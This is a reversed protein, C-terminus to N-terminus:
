KRKLPGWAQSPKPLPVVTGFSPFEDTSNTDPVKDWPADKVFFGKSEKPAGNVDPRSPTEHLEKLYEQDIIDQLYEEEFAMLYERCDLCNEEAGTITIVDPEDSDPRPFKIDVKYEDMLRRVNRGKTGIIRPHVRPDIKVNISSMDELEHVIELIAKKALNANNEYGTITIVNQVENREPFQINVDHDSRIKSIVAGKRGIIKPHYQSDVEVELKYSRLLRDQKESELATCREELAQKAGQVNNPPGTVKIINSKEEPPPVTISVEHDEMMKRVDKGKQGIIFRHFEFPVEVELTIPVLALLAKKAEECNEPKGTILIVDTKNTGSELSSEVNPIVDGNPIATSADDEPPTITVREGNVPRDPFKIGVDFQRTIEQVKQGRAGMVTRHYKQAIVCEVVVQADLNKILNELEEKAQEVAEKKGIVSILEPDSDHENPFIVRAGTKERVKKIKSGGTGILFKHYAPKARITATYSSLQKESTLERLQKCANEADEPPGRIVVKDCASGEPPFRIHVGSCDDLIARILRGKAGIISNHFKSPIEVTIEKINALDKQIAEIKKKALEVNAKKGTIIIMDSNMNEHPLEIRTDTEDRIKKITAGGKGIINKHFEKFIQVQAQYNNTVLEQQYQSLHQYAKDVDNKPGRLTVVDSKKGADPFSIQVQNFKDRIERIKEGRAGIITKHFRQEIIIDRSKENEMRQAMELLEQKARQVGNPDGEIRIINSNDSDSPIQIAVGTENKIRSINAGNKGIIHKHFRQDIEIEAFAMRKRLDEICESLKQVCEEVEDPPGEINIKDQGETFEIHVKPTNQTIKKINSGQKGIIFRHLWAPAKVEEVIVSNAKSYVMTLAPGLKDEEGRLTITGSPSELSPVEVSVGTAELIEQINARKQGIVYKHQCKRVEVSVPQCKKKKEELTKLIFTKAKMVGEKEGSVVIEDKMVSPPPVNIRVNTSEMLSKINNNHPGCIFPHYIKPVPIREFALKAQEDSTCQIEHRAKEVGEKTGVIRIIDTNDARPIIIKTATNLELEQLKKGNKGLIFRHHEKPIKITYSAQTQLESVVERRAKMVDDPKGSIVVTLSQDKALSMEISVGTKQMIERCIKAQEGEEGFSHENIEKFRREELPVTFIQTTKTCRRAFKNEGHSANTAPLDNKDSLLAPFAEDYTQPEYAEDEINTVVETAM